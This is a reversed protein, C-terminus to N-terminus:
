SRLNRQQMEASAIRGLATQADVPSIDAPDLVDEHQLAEISTTVEALPRIAQDGDAANKRIRTELM